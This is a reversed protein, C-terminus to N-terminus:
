SDRVHGGRIGRMIEFQIEVTRRATEGTGEATEGTEEATEV